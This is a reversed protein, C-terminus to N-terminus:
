WESVWGAARTAPFNESPVLEVLKRWHEETAYTMLDDHQANTSVM